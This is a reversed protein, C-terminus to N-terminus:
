GMRIVVTLGPQAGPSEGAGLVRRAADARLRALVEPPVQPDHLVLDATGLWRAQRLTLDDPDASTLVIEVM